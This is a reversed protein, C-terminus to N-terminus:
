SETVGSLNFEDIAVSEGNLLVEIKHLGNYYRRTTIPKITHKKKFVQSGQKLQCSKWKFVKPSLEGNAKQFHIAYDLIADEKSPMDIEVQIEFTKGYIVKNESLSLNVRNPSLATYGLLSLTPEHGAKILTRLGHRIVKKRQPTAKKDMWWPKIKKILWDAHDKSYDNLHNAVSKRVYESSDDKLADLLPFTLEPNDIVNKLQIGWPLRPRSGESVLRRVHENEHTIWQKLTLEALHFRDSLIHRIGWESSFYPTLVSLMKLAQEIDHHSEHGVFDCFPIALWGHIGLEDIQNDEPALAAEVVECAESFSDPLHQQLAVTIQRSREMLSLDDLNCLSSKLFAESSFSPYVRKLHQAILKIRSRGLQNKFPEAM